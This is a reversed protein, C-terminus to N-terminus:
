PGLKPHSKPYPFPLQAQKAIRIMRTRYNNADEEGQGTQLRPEHQENEAFRVFEQVYLPVGEGDGTDVMKDEDEEQQDMQRGSGGEEREIFRV